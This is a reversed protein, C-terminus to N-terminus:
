TREATSSSSCSRSWRGERPTSRSRSSSCRTIVGASRRVSEGPRPRIATSRWPRRGARRTSTRARARSGSRSECKQLRAARSRSRSRRSTCTATTRADRGASRCRKTARAGRPPARHDREDGASDRDHVHRDRAAGGRLPGLRGRARHGDRRGRFCDTRPDAGDVSRRPRRALAGLHEGEAASGSGTAGACGVEGARTRARAAPDGAAQPPAGPRPRLAPGSSGRGRLGGPPQLVRDAPDSRVQPRPLPRVPRDHQRVHVDDDDAHRRSRPQPRDAQRGHRRRHQAALERGVARGRPFRARRDRAARGSLARRRRAAREVFRAYPKDANFSGILYDRYPWANPRPRDQDNGHTEAFHVVDMWHRAWREGYRPSALLRDVVREYADSRPDALFADMEAPTPPLGTLDFTVRRLLTARDAPEALELGQEELKAIVFVDVPTQIRDAHQVAPLAPRQIPQYAWHEPHDRALADIPADVPAEPWPAGEDIWRRLVGVEEPLLMSGKEPMRILEDAGAVYHILLSHSSDGPVIAGGIQGGGLASAKQDLRYDSRARKPGHCSHCSREFIPAVDAAFDISREVPPPLTSPDLEARAGQDQAFALAPVFCAVAATVASGSSLGLDRHTSNM